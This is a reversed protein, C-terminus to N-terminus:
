HRLMRDNWFRAMLHCFASDRQIAQSLGEAYWLKYHGDSAVEHYHQDGAITGCLLLCHKQHDLLIPILFCTEM